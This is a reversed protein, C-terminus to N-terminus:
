FLSRQAAAPPESPPPESPAALCEPGDYRADNVAPGVPRIELLEGDIGGLLGHLAEAPQSQELWAGEQEPALIVPMRDHLWAVRGSAARTIITASRVTHEGDPSRWRSWLGAFAFPQGDARTVRFARKRGDAGRQWEYFGDALILCRFRRFADRYAPREAVTEARANITKVPAGPGRSWPPILGWRLLEGRADGERGVTVALIEDGPAM